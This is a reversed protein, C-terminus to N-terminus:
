SEEVTVTIVDTGGFAHHEGDGLQLCLEHEGPELDLETETSGDGFHYYGDAQADDGPGPIAEGDEVCGADVVIHFHGEGPAVADAPVIEVDTAEMEVSFPSTVTDGDTPSVFTAQGDAPQEAPEEDTETEEVEVDAGDPEEMVTQGGDCAAVLLMLTLLLLFPLRHM